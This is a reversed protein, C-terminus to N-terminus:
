KNAMQIALATRDVNGEFLQKLIEDTAGDGLLQTPVDSSESYNTKLRHCLNVIRRGVDRIRINQEQLLKSVKAMTSALDRYMYIFLFTEYDTLREYLDKAIGKDKASESRLQTFDHLHELIYEYARCLSKLCQSRGLWRTANWCQLRLSPRKKLDEKGKNVQKVMDDFFEDVHKEWRVTTSELGKKRKPSNKYFKYVDKLLREIQLVFDDKKAIDQIALDLRHAPCHFAVLCPSLLQLKKAVGGKKGLMASCGDSSWGVLRKIDLDYSRLSLHIAAKIDEASQSAPTVLDLYEVAIQFQNDTLDLFKIYVILQQDVSKDTTEDAMIGFFPSKQIRNKLLKRFHKSIIGIIEWATHDDKYTTPPELGKNVLTEELKSPFKHIAVDEKALWWASHIRSWLADDTLDAVSSLQLAKQGKPAHPRLQRKHRNTNEHQIFLRPELGPEKWSSYNHAGISHSFVSQM